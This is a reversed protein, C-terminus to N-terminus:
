IQNHYLAKLWKKYTGVFSILKRGVEGRTYRGGISGKLSQIENEIPLVTTARYVLSYSTVSTSTRVIMMYGWLALHLKDAWDKYTVLIKDM